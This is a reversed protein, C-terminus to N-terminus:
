QVEGIMSVFGDTGARLMAQEHLWVVGQAVSRDPVPVVTLLAVLAAVALAGRWLARRREEEERLAVGLSRLMRWLPLVTNATLLGAAAAVGLLPSFSGLWLGIFTWGAFYLVLWLPRSLLTMRVSRPEPTADPRAPSLTSM